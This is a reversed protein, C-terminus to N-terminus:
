GAIGWRCLLALRTEGRPLPPEYPVPTHFTWAIKLQSVNDRNIQSLPSYRTGGPDNGYNPWDTESGRQAQLFGTSLILALIKGLITVCRLRSRM